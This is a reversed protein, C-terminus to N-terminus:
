PITKRAEEIVCDGLEYNNLVADVRDAFLEGQFELICWETQGEIAIQLIM